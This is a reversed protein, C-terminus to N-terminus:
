RERARSDEEFTVEGEAEVDVQERRLETQILHEDVTTSKRVILRERVVRRKTVVLEEEFIPISVSGDELVEVEGSDGERAAVREAAEARETRRPVAREVDRSEVSKHVRVAGAETTETGVDAEEEHRVVEGGAEPREESDRGREGNV